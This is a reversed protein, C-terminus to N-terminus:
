EGEWAKLNGECLGGPTKEKKSRLEQRRKRLGERRIKSLKKRGERPGGLRGV